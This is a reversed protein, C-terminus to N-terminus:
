RVLDKWTVCPNDYLIRNWMEVDRPQVRDNINKALIINSTAKVMACADCANCRKLGIRKRMELTEAESLGPLNTM